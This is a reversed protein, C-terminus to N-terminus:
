APFMRLFGQATREAHRAREDQSMPGSLNLLRHMMSTHELLAFFVESAHDADGFRAGGQPHATLFRAIAERTPRPGAEFFAQTLAPHAVAESILLRYMCIVNPDNLLEIFQRGIHRLADLLPAETPLDDASLGYEQVKSEVCARLLADKGGFHSYVTQKSVGAEAAVADVSTDKFGHKLFLQSSAELIAMRKAESKPRGARLSDQAAANSMKM